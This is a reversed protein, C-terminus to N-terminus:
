RPNVPRGARKRIMLMRWRGDDWRSTARFGAPAVSLRDIGAATWEELSDGARWHWIRVPNDADGFLFYPKSGEREAFQLLASDPHTDGAFTGEPGTPDGWEVLFGIEEDNWLARVYM